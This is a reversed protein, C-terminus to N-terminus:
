TSSQQNGYYGSGSGDLDLFISKRGRKHVIFHCKRCLTVGNSINYRDKPFLSWPRIHHAQLYCDKKFCRQCTNEDREYVAKRWEKYKDSKRDRANSGKARKVKKKKRNVKRYYKKKM